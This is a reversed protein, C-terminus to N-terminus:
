PHFVCRFGVNPRRVRSNKEQTTDASFVGARWQNIGGGRMISGRFSSARIYGLNGYRSDMREQRDLISYSRSSGFYRKLADPIDKVYGSFTQPINSINHSVVEQLNGSFDWVFEGNILQHVRRNLSWQMQEEDTNSSNLIRNGPQGINLVNGAKINITGESWNTPTMEIHRAITQWEDNSILDYGPGNARCYQTAIDENSERILTGNALSVAKPFISYRSQNGYRNANQPLNAGQLFGIRPNRAPNPPRRNRDGERVKAEFKMVCFNLNEMSEFRHILKPVATYNQPCLFNNTVQQCLMNQTSGQSVAVQIREKRSVIATIDASVEWKGRNCLPQQALPHGELYVLVASRNRECQGSLRYDHVNKSNMVPLEDISIARSQSGCQTTDFQNYEPPITQNCASLLICVAYWLAPHKKM